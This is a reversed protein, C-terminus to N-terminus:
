ETGSLVWDFHCPGAGPSCLGGGGERRPVCPDLKFLPARIVFYGLALRRDSYSGMPRGRYYLGIFNEKQSRPAVHVALCKHKSFVVYPGNGDICCFIM